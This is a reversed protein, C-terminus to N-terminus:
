GANIDEKKVISPMVDPLLFTLFTKVFLNNKISDDYKALIEFHKTKLDDSIFLEKQAHSSIMDSIISTDIPISM